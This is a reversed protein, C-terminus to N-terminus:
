PAFVCSQSPWTGNFPLPLPNAALAEDFTRYWPCAFGFNVWQVYLVQQAGAQTVVLDELVPFPPHLSPQFFTMTGEVVQVVNPCTGTPFWAPCTWSGTIDIGSFFGQNNNWYFNLTPEPLKSYHCFWTNSSTGAQAGNNQVCSLLEHEPAPHSRDASLRNWQGALPASLDAGAPLAVALAFLSALAVVLLTRKPM